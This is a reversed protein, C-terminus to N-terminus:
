IYCTSKLWYTTFAKAKTWWVHFPSQEHGKSPVKKSKSTVINFTLTVNVLRYTPAYTNRLYRKNIHDRYISVSFLLQLVSLIQLSIGCIRKTKISSGRGRCVVRVLSSANCNLIQLIFCILQPEFRMVRLGMYFQVNWNFSEYNCYRVDTAMFSARTYM